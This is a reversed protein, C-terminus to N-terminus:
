VQGTPLEARPLEANLNNFHVTSTPYACEAGHSDIIALIKLLVDQKVEHYHAWNVTKTFTYVFFDLSSPAFANFNVMLTQDHDIEDHAELMAKVDNVIATVKAADDYRIGISEYIRRNLMRSPNELSIQTFTSNPVYLPRKDFTRIRTLRWGIDEVTGEINKDPSRVWDGVKFPRDMYIMLGGFFNALLDKAAFGVALGGIGGFALVGSVSYGLTQLVVLVSTIIVSVRLLKGMASVTTQDMPQHAYEPDVLNKEARTIFRVLFWAIIAVVGVERIPQVAELLNVESQRASIELAWCLGILWVFWRVPKQAAEILADDWLNKSKTAQKMLNNFVVRAVFAVLLTAVVIIFVEAIWINERGTIESLWGPMAVASHIM